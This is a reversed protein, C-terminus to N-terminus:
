SFRIKLIALLSRFYEPLDTKSKGIKRAVFTTPVEKFVYGKRFLLYASESLAAYGSEKMPHSLIEEVAAKPYLRLGNTYDHIPIGLIIRTYLNALRSLVKRLMPWNVIRSGKIYRSGIVVTKSSAHNILRQLDQSDHSFDADMELIYNSRDLNLAKKFGALVASGRGLKGSREILTVRPNKRAYTRIFSATQDPSADDVIIISSSPYKKILIPLLKVLNEKENYAPIVISLFPM